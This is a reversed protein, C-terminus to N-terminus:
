YCLTKAYLFYRGYMRCLILLKIWGAVFHAFFFIGCIYITLGIILKFNDKIFFYIKNCFIIKQVIRIFFYANNCFYFNKRIYM